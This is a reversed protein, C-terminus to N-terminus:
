EKWCIAPTFCCVAANSCSGGVGRDPAFRPRQCRIRPVLKRRRASCHFYELVVVHRFVPSTLRKVEGVPRFLEFFPTKSKPVGEFKGQKEGTKAPKQPKRAYNKYTSYFRLAPREFAGSDADGRRTTSPYGGWPWFLGYRPWLAAAHGGHLRELPFSFGAPHDNGFHFGGGRKTSRLLISEGRGQERFRAPFNGFTQRNAGSTSSKGFRFLNM